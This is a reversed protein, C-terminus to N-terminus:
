ERPTDIFAGQQNLYGWRKERKFYERGTDHKIHRVPMGQDYHWTERAIDQETKKSGTLFRTQKTVSGSEDFIERSVLQGDPKYYERTAIAGNTYHTRRTAKKTVNLDHRRSLVGATYWERRIVGDHLHITEILGEKKRNWTWAFNAPTESLVNLKGIPLKIPLSPESELGSHEIAIARWVGSQELTFSQGAIIPTKTVRKQNLSLHYGFTERHNEGPLLEIANKTVRLHPRDPRRVVVLHMDTMRQRMLPSALNNVAKTLATHPAGLSQFQKDTLCRAAFSTVIQNQRLSSGETNFANRTLGAFRIATRRKYQIVERRVVIEGQEPFGATSTVNIYDLGVNTIRTVPGSDLPYNTVFGIKTGDPSGKPDADYIDSGDRVTAPFCLLSLPDVTEWGDGSRLDAIVSDGCVWRGSAGCASVDGVREWALIHVSSPFPENWKRGRILGDGLLFYKGDGLWSMHCKQLTPVGIRRNNGDLDYFARTAAFPDTNSAERSFFLPHRPNPLLHIGSVDPLFKLKGAPLSIRVIRDKPVARPDRLSGYIWRDNADTEGLVVAGADPVLVKTAGTDADHLMNETVRKGALGKSSNYTSYILWNHQKTWRPNFGRGVILETDKRLDFIRVTATDNEGTLYHTYCVFRGNASFCQTNYRNAWDRAQPNHTLRWVGFNNGSAKFVKKQAHVPLSFALALLIFHLQRVMDRNQVGSTKAPPQYCIENANM